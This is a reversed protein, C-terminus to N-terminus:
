VNQQGQQDMKGVSAKMIKRGKEKTKRRQKEM